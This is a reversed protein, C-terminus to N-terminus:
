YLTVDLNAVTNDGFLLSENPRQVVIAWTGAPLTETENMTLVGQRSLNQRYTYQGGFLKGKAKKYKELDEATMLMVDVNKPQATVKVEVRADSRLTFTLMKAEGEKLEFRESALKQPQRLIGGLGASAPAAKDNTAARYALFLGAVVVLGLVIFAPRTRPKPPPGDMAAIAAIDKGSDIPAGCQPCAPAKDSVERGCESCKILAM